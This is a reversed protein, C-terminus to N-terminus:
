FEKLVSMQLYILCPNFIFLLIREAQSALLLDLLDIDIKMTSRGSKGSTFGTRPIYEVPFAFLWNHGYDHKLCYNEPMM